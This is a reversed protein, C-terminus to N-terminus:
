HKNIFPPEEVTARKPEGGIVIEIDQGETANEEPLYCMGVPEDLTPSMTGSTVEGVVEGDVRAEYGRHPVGKEELVFGALCEDPEPDIADRGVFGTSDSVVFGIGAEYVTRPNEDGFEHGGLLFGMEIRLTDRAGLGCPTAEIARWVTEANDADVVLEFGDEGTYGTRSVFAGIGGAEEVRALKWEFRSLTDPKPRVGANGMAETTDKGQVAFMATEGTRNEITAEYREKKVYRKWRETARRDRGTNSVFVVGDETRYLVIDDIIYGDKDLMSSYHSEGIELASVDNTTMRDALAVADYGSVRVRGMHSVDFKGVGERVAHHEEKTSGYRVPMEWGGFETFRAGENDHLEYLPPRSAM